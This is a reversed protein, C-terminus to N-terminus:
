TGRGPELPVIAVPEWGEGTAVLCTRHVPPAEGSAPAGRSPCTMVLSWNGDAAVLLEAVCNAAVIGRAAPVEGFRAAHFALVAAREGCRTGGFQAQAATLGPMLALSTAAALRALSNPM